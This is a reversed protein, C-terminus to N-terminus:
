PCAGTPRDRGTSSSEWRSAGCTNVARALFFTGHGAAPVSTTDSVQTVASGAAVCVDGNRTGFLPVEDLDGAMVDYRTGPGASLAQSSFALTAADRWHLDGIPSPVAFAQTDQPACDCPDPRGDGDADPAGACPTVLILRPPQGDEKSHYSLQSTATTTLAFTLLGDADGNVNGTVLAGITGDRSSQPMNVLTAGIAPASASTIAGEAWSTNLVASVRGGGGQLVRLSLKALAAPRIASSLDFGLYDNIPLGTGLELLTAAAGFNVLPNAADVHADKTADIAVLGTDARAPWFVQATADHAFFGSLLGAVKQEGSPAPHTFDAELDSPLWVLGDSRPTTGDAWLYPGWMLLPARVPGTVQGYNLNPDGAIQDEILWKVAFGSEYAQPEPNLSGPAAYGGYIRSSLYCIKLNPFKDHLNNAVQKLEDRLTLAHVPFNDPPGADAEKLWAIQVQAATLGMSALRQMMLTWYSAAPDAILAATQGGQGTDLLVIRANRLRNADENREFAGFEHTTNSMGVAIMGIFGAPDPIGAADRPQIQGAAALAATEHAVPPDNTSGPYLGGPFGRYLAPGLDNLPIIGTNQARAGGPSIATGAFVALACGIIRQARAIRPLFRSPQM